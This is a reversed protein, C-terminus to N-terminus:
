RRYVVVQMVVSLRYLALYLPFSSSEVPTAKFLGAPISHGINRNHAITCNHASTGVFGARVLALHMFGM